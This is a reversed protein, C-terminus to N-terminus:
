SVTAPSFVRTGAVWGCELRYWAYVGWDSGCWGVHVVFSPTYFLNWYDTDLVGKKGEPQKDILKAIIACVDSESFIHKKPLDAEIKKDNAYALLKFSEINFSAGKKIASAKSLIREEFSSWVSLGARDKFYEKPDFDKSVKLAINTKVSELVKEKTKM